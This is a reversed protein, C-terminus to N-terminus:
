ASRRFMMAGLKTALWVRSEEYVVKGFGKAQRSVVANAGPIAPIDANSYRPISKALLMLPSSQEVRAFLASHGFSSEVQQFQDEPSPSLGRRESRVAPFTKPLQSTKM